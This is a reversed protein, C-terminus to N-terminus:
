IELDKQLIQQLKEGGFEELWLSFRQGPKANERYVNLVNQFVSIAQERSYVEMTFEPLKPLRGLRGGFSFEYYYQGSQTAGSPCIKRCYGCSSCRNYDRNIQGEGDRELAVCYCNEVCNLCGICYRSDTYVQECGHIGIDNIQPRACRNPCGSLAVRVDGPLSGAEQYFPLSKRFIEALEKVNALGKPCVPRGICVNFNLLSRSKCGKDTTKGPSLKVEALIKEVQGYVQSNDLDVEPLYIGERTTTYIKGNGFTRAIQSIKRIQETTWEVHGPHKLFLSM